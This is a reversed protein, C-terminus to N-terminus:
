VSSQLRDVFARPSMVDVGRRSRAPFHRLNGSILIAAAAAACALFEGDAPDPLAMPWPPAIAAVGENELFGLVHEVEAPDLAFRPRALVDRYEAVIRPTQAVELAGDLVLDLILGPPGHPSLLASVVVNTDLIVRIM